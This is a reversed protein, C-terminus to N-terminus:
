DTSTRTIGTSALTTIALAPSPHEQPSRTRLPTPSETQILNVDADFTSARM